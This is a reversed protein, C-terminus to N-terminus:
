FKQTTEIKVAIKLQISWLTQGRFGWFQPVKFIEGGDGWFQPSLPPCPALPAFITTLMAGYLTKPMRDKLLNTRATKHLKSFPCHLNKLNQQL